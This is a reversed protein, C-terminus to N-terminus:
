HKLIEVPTIELKSTDVGRNELYVKVRGIFKETQVPERIPNVETPISYTQCFKECQDFLDKRM